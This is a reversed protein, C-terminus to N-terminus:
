ISYGEGERKLDLPNSQFEISENNKLREGAFRAGRARGVALSAVAVM